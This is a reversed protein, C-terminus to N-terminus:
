KANKIERRPKRTVISDDNNADDTTEENQPVYSSVVEEEVKLTEEMISSKESISSVPVYPTSDFEVWKLVKITKNEVQQSSSAQMISVEDFTVDKSCMFKKDELDWLKFGKVGGKFGVFIAKRARSDLKGYKVHYDAPCGFICLSDYDQAHKGSWMEIPTKDGIAASPLRNILHSAYSVAEVWFKKDLGANSLMCRVKELLTRNMREAVGNQQPTHRVMFHRKIGESLCVQLFLNSTYEGVNDPRLVKIKRGTQTEVLKKWKM